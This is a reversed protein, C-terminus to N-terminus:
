ATGNAKLAEWDGRSIGQEQRRRRLDILQNQNEVPRLDFPLM